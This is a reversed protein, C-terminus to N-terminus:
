MECNGHSVGGGANHDWSARSFYRILRSAHYDNTNKNDLELKYTNNHQKELIRYPGDYKPLSKNKIGGKRTTGNLVMVLENEKLDSIFGSTKRDKTYSERIGNINALETIRAEETPATHSNKDLPLRLEKGFVLKAPSINLRSM